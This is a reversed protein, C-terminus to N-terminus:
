KMRIFFLFVSAPQQIEDSVEIGEIDATVIVTTDGFGIIFDSSFTATGGAPIGLFRGSKESGLLIFGGDLRLNWNVKLADIDGTNNLTVRIKGIESSISEIVFEPAIIQITLPDSWGSEYGFDDKVRVSVNFVGARTWIHSSPITQGPSYPGQWDSTTDDGWNWQVYIDDQKLTDPIKMTFSYSVGAEGETPGVPPELYMGTAGVVVLAYVADLEPTQVHGDQIIEDASIEIKWAGPEPNEVFVCEVTNKTDPDGGPESWMGTILGNNGYYYTGSPSTVKMTIDNIRHQTQVAPNGAPDKYTMAIKLEPEGPEVTVIHESVDFPNLIDTEDITIMKERMDYMKQLDPMGWGQHMRAKDHSTGSFPYQEATAVLMAKATTMHAKNEFVTGQPDVTNGFIGESWMQFFLGVHGAIIPTAGSTGGFSSTYSNSGGTWTTLINDYFHTLTPKIRGDSAPGISAGYNWMDDSKTLTDYHYIGGGSIINKAWAQPRSMQDGANSQSQCHVIDFDFLTTDTDASITTYQTTRPSGVSATQFVANYPEQVLEGTHTYRSPGELGVSLYYAVIGQGEPLLGRAQPNGTGDGFVIGACATGHASSPNIGGHVILPRSAFDVHNLNFETDFIEGRVGAGTFGAVTEIYNAGGIERANDMDVEYEGWIDIFNIEDWGAVEFLQNPTLTAVLLFKGQDASDLIWDKSEIRDAVLEKQEEDLVQINYRQLPYAMDANDLNEIMYEELRYAPHYQGIWRVYPLESVDQKVDEDMEVLYAFQAIYHRVYGGLDTIAQHFIELPQTLFQVIYLNTSSDAHLRSDVYPTRNLPDFQDYRLGIEYCPQVTRVVQGDISISYYPIIIEEESIEDWFTLIISTDPIEISYTGNDTLKDTIAENENQISGGYVSFTSIILFICLACSLVANNKKKM